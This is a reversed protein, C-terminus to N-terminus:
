AAVVQPAPEMRAELRAVRRELDEVRPGTVMEREILERIVACAKKDTAAARQEAWEKQPKSLRLMVLETLM